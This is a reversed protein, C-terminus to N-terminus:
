EVVMNTESDESCYVDMKEVMEGLLLRVSGEVQQRYTVMKGQQAPTLVVQPKVAAESVKKAKPGRKGRKGKANPPPTVDKKPPHFEYAPLELQRRATTCITPIADVLDMLLTYAVGYSAPIGQPGAGGSVRCLDSWMAMYPDRVSADELGDMM